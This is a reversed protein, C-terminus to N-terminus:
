QDPPTRWKTVMWRPVAFSAFLGVLAMPLGIETAGGERVMDTQWILLGLLVGITAGIRTLQIIIFRNRARANHDQTM